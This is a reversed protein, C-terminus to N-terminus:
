QLNMSFGDGASEWDLELVKITFGDDSLQKVINEKGRKGLRLSGYVFFARLCDCGCLRGKGGDGAADGDRNDLKNELV